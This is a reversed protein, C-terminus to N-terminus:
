NAVAVEIHAFREKLRLFPRELYKYSVFAALLTGGITLGCFAFEYILGSSLGNAHLIMRTAYLILPHLMYIGYSINGLMTLVPHELKRGLSAGAAINLILAACLISFVRHYGNDLPIPFITVLTFLILTVTLIYPRYLLNFWHDRRFVIYAALAGIAMNDFRIQQLIFHLLLALPRYPSSIALNVVFDVITKIVIIGLFILWLNNRFKRMLAPWFLYFQEEVGISWLHTVLYLQVPARIVYLFHVLFLMIFALDFPQNPPLHYASGFFLPFGAFVILLVVYYLPWIRLIRRLQFHSLSITHTQQLETLLLYTILFGSLVFFLTVAEGGPLFFFEPHKWNSYGWVM